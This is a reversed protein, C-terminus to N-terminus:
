QAAPRVLFECTTAECGHAMLWAERARDWVSKDKTVTVGSSPLKGPYSGPGLWVLTVNKYTGAPFNMQPQTGNRSNDPVLLITDSMDVPGSDGTVKFLQGTSTRSGCSSKDERPDTQCKLAILSYRITLKSNAGGNAACSAGKGPRESFFMHAGDILTDIIEGARCIDNEIADDRINKMYVSRVVWYARRNGFVRPSFGDEVNEIWSNELIIRSANGDKFLIGDGDLNSKIYQWTLDPSQRGKIKVGTLCVVEGSADIRLPYTAPNALIMQNRADLTVPGTIKFENHEGSRVRLRRVNEADLCTDTAEMPAASYSPPAAPVPPKHEPLLHPTVTFTCASLALAGLM